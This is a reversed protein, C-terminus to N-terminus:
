KLLNMAFPHQIQHNHAQLEHETVCESVRDEAWGRNRLSSTLGNIILMRVVGYSLSNGNQEANSYAQYNRSVSFRNQYDITTIELFQTFKKFNVM